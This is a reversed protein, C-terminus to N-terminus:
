NMRTQLPSCVRWYLSLGRGVGWERLGVGPRGRSDKDNSYSYSNFCSKTTGGLKGGLIDSTAEVTPPFEM